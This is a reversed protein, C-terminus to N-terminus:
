VVPVGGIVVTDLLPAGFALFLEDPHACDVVVLDGRKGVDLSGCDDAAGLAYAANLTVGVIAEAPTLRYWPAAMAMSVLLSTAHISSCHDTAIALPVGTDVLHRAEARRDTMYVLEAIPLVVAVCDALGVDDIEAISTYTLHDASIAGGEVATSWGGSPAWADAHVRVPLGLQRSTSMLRAAHESTFLGVEVTVDHFQAIGQAVVAPLMEDHILETYADAPSGGDVDRPVIHAGLFTIVLQMPTTARSDDLLALQRLESETTLGYGSKVELTTVGGRLIRQYTTALRRRLEDGTAARTSEVSSWIGGGRRVVDALSAGALREAYEHCREGAFLPHSHCEILGPLVTKGSADLTAVGPEGWGAVVDDTRGVAVVRGNRIAVAGDAILDLEAQEPRRRPGGRDHVSALQAAHIVNLDSM